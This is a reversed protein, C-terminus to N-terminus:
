LLLCIFLRSSSGACRTSAEVQCEVHCRRVSSELVNVNVSQRQSGGTGDREWNGFHAKSGERHSWLEGPEEEGIASRDSGRAIHSRELGEYPLLLMSIAEVTYMRILTAWEKPGRLKTALNKYAPRHFIETSSKREQLPSLQQFLERPYWEETSRDDNSNIRM